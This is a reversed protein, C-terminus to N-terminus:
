QSCTTLKSDTTIGLFVEDTYGHIGIEGNHTHCIQMKSEIDNPSKFGRTERPRNNLREMAAKIEIDTVENFDARTPRLLHFANRRIFYAM